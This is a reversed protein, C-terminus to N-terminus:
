RGRPAAETVCWWALGTEVRTLLDKVAEWFPKGLNGREHRCFWTTCVSNRHTWIGCSGTESQYHPCLLQQGVGFANSPGRATRDYVLAYLQPKFVGLPTVGSGVAIRSEMSRRGDSTEAAVDALIDGVLYNPVDPVFTCCKTSTSFPRGPLTMPCNGCTARSEQPPLEGLLEAMWADYRPTLVTMQRDGRPLNRLVLLLGRENAQLFSSYHLSQREM